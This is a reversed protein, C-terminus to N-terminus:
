GIGTRSSDGLETNTNEWFSCLRVIGGEISSCKLVEDLRSPKIARSRVLFLLVIVWVALKVSEEAEKTEEKKSKIIKKMYAFEPKKEKELTKKINVSKVEQYKVEKKEEERHQQQQDQPPKGQKREHAKPHIKEKRPEGVRNQPQQHEQMWKKMM